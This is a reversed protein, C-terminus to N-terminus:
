RVDLDSRRQHQEWGNANPSSTRSTFTITPPTNDIKLSLTRAIEVSGAKDVSRYQPIHVGDITITTPGSYDTWGTNDLNFESHDVGSLNDTASM